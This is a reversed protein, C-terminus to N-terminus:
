GEETPTEDAATAPEDSAPAETGASAEAAAASAEAAAAVEAAVAAAAAAVEAAAAAEAAKIAEAVRHEEERRKREADAKIAELNQAERHQKAALHNEVMQAIEGADKGKRHLHLELMVGERSLISRVTDSPQAGNKLWHIVRDRKLTVQDALLMPNYQGIRELFRGDRPTRSDTAVIDYVPRKKRGM